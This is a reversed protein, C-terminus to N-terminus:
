HPPRQGPRNKNARNDQPKNPDQAEPKLPVSTQQKQNPSSEVNQGTGQSLPQKVPLRNQGDLDGAPPNKPRSKGDSPLNMRGQRIRQPLGQKWDQWRKMDHAQMKQPPGPRQFKRVATREGPKVTTAEKAFSGAQEMHKVYCNDDYAEVITEEGEVRASFDTGRVGCVATPTRIEFSSGSTLNKISSFVEGGLLELKESDQVLITATSNAGLRMVKEEDDQLTMEVFSDAGTTISDGAHLATGAQADRWSIDPAVMAQVSGTVNNIEVYPQDSQGQSFSLTASLVLFLFFVISVHSRQM